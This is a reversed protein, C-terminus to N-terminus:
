GRCRQNEPDYFARRSLRAPRRSGLIEVNIDGDDVSESARVYGLALTQGSRFGSSGSTVYGICSNGQLIPDGPLPDADSADVVLRVFRWEPKAERQALVAERGVFDTKVFDVFKELGADFMSYESGFDAGWGHYAKEIRMSNLAYSGFDVMGFDAGAQWLADYVACLDSSALHLEWGLEGVYSVRMATLACGAVEIEAVSM